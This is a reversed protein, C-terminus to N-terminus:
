RRVLAGQDHTPGLSGQGAPLTPPTYPQGYAGAAPAGPPPAYTGPPPAYAGPPPGGCGGSGCSKKQFTSCGALSTALCAGIILMSGLRQSM